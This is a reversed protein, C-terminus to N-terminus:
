CICSKSAIGQRIRNLIKIATITAEEPGLEQVCETPVASSINDSLVEMLIKEEPHKVRNMYHQKQNHNRENWPIKIKTMILKNYIMDAIADYGKSSFHVGDSWFVKNNPDKQDFVSELDLLLIPPGQQGNRGELICAKVYERLGANIEIRATQNIGFWSIQPITVVMTIVMNTLLQEHDQENKIYSRVLRHMQILSALIDVTKQKLSLDNTGGLIVAAGVSPVDGREKLAALVSPLRKVMDIALDGSVGENVITLNMLRKTLRETYPQGGFGETLSDGFALLTRGTLFQALSVTRPTLTQSRNYRPPGLQVVDITSAGHTSRWVILIGFFFIIQGFCIVVGMHMTRDSMGWRNKARVAEQHARLDRVWEYDEEDENVGFYEEEDM